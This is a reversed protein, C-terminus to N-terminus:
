HLCIHYAQLTSSKLVLCGSITSIRHTSWGVASSTQRNRSGTVPLDQDRGSARFASPTLRPSATQIQSKPERTLHDQDSLYELFDTLSSFSVSFSISPYDWWLSPSHQHKYIHFDVLTTNVMLSYSDNVLRYSRARSTNHIPWPEGDLLLPFVFKGRRTRKMTLM